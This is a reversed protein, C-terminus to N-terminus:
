FFHFLILLIRKKHIVKLCIHFGTTSNGRLLLYIFKKSQTKIVQKKGGTPMVIAIIHAM